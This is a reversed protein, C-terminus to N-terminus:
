VARVSGEGGQRRMPLAVMWKEAEAQPLIFEFTTGHSRLRLARHGAEVARGTALEDDYEVEDIRALEFSAQLDPNEYFFTDNTLAVAVPIRELGEMYDARGVLRSNGRRKELMESILDQSRTRLFFWVLVAAVVLGVITLTALM